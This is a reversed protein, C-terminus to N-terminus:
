SITLCLHNNQPIHLLTVCHWLNMKDSVELLVKMSAFPLTDRKIPV